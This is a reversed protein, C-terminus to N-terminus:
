IRGITCGFEAELDCLKDWASRKAKVIGAKRAERLSSYEPKFVQVSEGTSVDFIKFGYKKVSADYYVHMEREGNVFSTDKSLLQYKM